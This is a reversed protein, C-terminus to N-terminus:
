MPKLLHVAAVSIPQLPWKLAHLHLLFTLKRTMYYVLFSNHIEVLMKANSFVKKFTLKQESIKIYARM